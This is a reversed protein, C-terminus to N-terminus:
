PNQWSGEGRKVARTAYIRAVTADAAGMPFTRM